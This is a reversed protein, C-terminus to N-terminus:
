GVAGYSLIRPDNRIVADVYLAVGLDGTWLSASPMGFEARWSRVQQMAHVAFRCARELWADDGTRHALQLLAFGNGATGHCLTPGKKLPGAQWIGNGGRRLLDEVVEDQRDLAALSTIVGAAGHCWQMRNQRSPQALSYWNVAEGDSMAYRELMARLRSRFVERRQADMLDFARVFVAINTVAGHGAGIFRCRQGYLDQLWLLGGDENEPEWTNWLEDHVSCLLADFRPDIEGDRLLLAPFATGPSGWMFERTPNGANSEALSLCREIASRDNTLLYKVLSIGAGGMWYSPVQSERPYTKFQEECRGIGRRYDSRLTLGYREALRSLGWMTGAAGFYIGLNSAGKGQGYDDEPHLPWGDDAHYASDILRVTDVIFATAEDRKFADDTLKEHEAPEYIM